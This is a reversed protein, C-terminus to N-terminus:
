VMIVWSSPSHLNDIGINNFSYCTKSFFNLNMQKLGCAPKTKICSNIVMIISVKQQLSENSLKSVGNFYMVWNTRFM